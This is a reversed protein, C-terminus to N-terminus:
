TSIRVEDLCRVYGRLYTECDKASKWVANLRKSRIRTEGAAGLEELLVELERRAARAADSGAEEVWAAVHSTAVEFASLGCCGAVCHVECAKLLPELAPKVDFTLGGNTAEVLRRTIERGVRVRAPPGQEVILPMEHRELAFTMTTGHWTVEANPLIGALSQLQWSWSADEETLDLSVNRQDLLADLAEHYVAPLETLTSATTSVEADPPARDTITALLRAELTTRGDATM